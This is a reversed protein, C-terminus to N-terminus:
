ENLYSELNRTFWVRNNKYPVYQVSSIGSVIAGENDFLMINVAVGANHYVRDGWFIDTLYNRKTKNNGGAAAISVYLVLSNQDELTAALNEAIMLGSLETKVGTSFTNYAANLNVYLNTVYALKASNMNPSNTTLSPMIVDLERKLKDIAELKQFLKSHSLDPSVPSYLRPYIIKYATVPLASRFYIVFDEEKLATLEVGKIDVDTRFLKLLDVVSSAISQAASLGEVAGAALIAPGRGGGGLPSKIQNTLALYNAELLEAYKITARYGVLSSLNTSYVVFTATPYNSGVQKAIEIAAKQLAKNALLAVEIKSKEDITTKGELTATKSNPYSADRVAKQAEAIAKEAEARAKTTQLAVLEPDTSTNTTDARVAAMAVTLFLIGTIIKFHNM